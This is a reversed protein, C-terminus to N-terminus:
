EARLRGRCWARISHAVPVPMDRDTTTDGNSWTIEFSPEGDDDQGFIVQRAHAMNLLLGADDDLTLWDARPDRPDNAM